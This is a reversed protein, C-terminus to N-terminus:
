KELEIWKTYCREEDKDKNYSEFLYEAIIEDFISYLKTTILRLEM